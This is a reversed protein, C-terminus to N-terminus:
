YLKDCWGFSINFFRRKERTNKKAFLYDSSLTRLPVTRNLDFTKLSDLGAETLFDDIVIHEFPERAEYDRAYEEVKKELHEFDVVSEGKESTSM